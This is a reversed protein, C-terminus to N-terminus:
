KSREEDMAEAIARRVSLSAGSETTEHLRWGRGTTSWRFMCRGSYSRKANQSELWDLLETDTPKNSM